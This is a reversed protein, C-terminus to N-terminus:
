GALLRAVFAPVTETAPGYLAEDFAGAVDSPALNIETTPIGRERAEAVYGAAPYVAGSTGIAVFRDAAALAAAIRELGYPMEGFWVVDPRMGGRGGCSPCPTATSLDARWGTVTGCLTCRAKLLEGHMHHVARSGAQEHLDDINQTCLFLSGGRADLGAELRELAAHAANPAAALLNQRRLNYFEHVTAPDRAFAGPTALKLPDFRAWIGGADRFTGLGSEASIGAGTLVFIRMRRRRRLRRPPGRRANGAARRHSRVSPAHLHPDLLRGGRTVPLRLITQREVRVCTAAGTDPAHPAFEPRPNFLATEDHLLLNARMIPAEPRISDLLRQVRRALSADYREVPLHIRALGKGLKEALTWNSPFCLIAGVLVHEDAGEPRDLLLLDEQVLRGAAILPEDDLAVRIGDPRVMTGGDRVYGPVGDLHALVLALLEGAAPRAEPALAHVAARREAILYDRAAMQEAFVEDRQLWDAPPVPVTGPLRLLHDAMWPAVPLHRQLVPPM